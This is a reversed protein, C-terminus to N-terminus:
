VSSRRCDSMATGLSRLFTCNVCWRQEPRHVLPQATDWDASEASPCPPEHSCSETPSDGRSPRPVRRSM